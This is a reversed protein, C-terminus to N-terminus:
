LRQINWDCADVADERLELFLAKDLVDAALLGAPVSCDANATSLRFHLAFLNYLRMLGEEAVIM